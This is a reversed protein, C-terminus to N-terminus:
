KKRGKKRHASKKVKIKIVARKRTGLETPFTPTISIVSAIFMLVFVLGFAFGWSAAIRGSSTYISVVLFGIISIIMFTGPLPAMRYTM